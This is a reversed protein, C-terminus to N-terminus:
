AKHEYMIGLTGAGCHSSITSGARTEIIEKFRYGELMHRVTEVVEPEAQSHTIIALDRIIDTKGELRGRIYDPIFKQQNGRYKRGVQMGGDVMNIEPHLNLLNAGFAQLASCRGGKKLYELTKIVFSCDVRTKYEELDEAIEKLGAGEAILKGARLILMGSGSSLLKSDVAYVGGLEEAANKANQHCASIGSSINIHIVECGTEVLPRWVELYEYESIASTKPLVGTKEVYEYLEPVTVNVGDKRLDEGLLVGLPIVKVGLRSYIEETLDCTSDCTIVIRSM